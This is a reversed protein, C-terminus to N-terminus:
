EEKPNPYLPGQSFLASSVTFTRLGFCFHLPLHIGTLETGYRISVQSINGPHLVVVDM